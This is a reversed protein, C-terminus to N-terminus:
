SSSPNRAPQSAAPEGAPGGRFALVLTVAGLGVAFWLTAARILLTAAAAEPMPTGLAVLMGTLSGEAVGLGGPLMSVAGALSAFAYLFTAGRLPLDVGLGHLVLAFAFCEFLWSIASLAVTLALAGPALLDRGAGLFLRLPEALRSLPGRR